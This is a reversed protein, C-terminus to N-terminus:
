PASSSWYVWEVPGPMSKRRSKAGSLWVPTYEEWRMVERTCSNRVWVTAARPGDVGVKVYTAYWDMWAGWCTGGWYRVPYQRSAMGASWGRRRRTHPWIRVTSSPTALKVSVYLASPNHSSVSTMKEVSLPPFVTPARLNPCRDAGAGGEEGM